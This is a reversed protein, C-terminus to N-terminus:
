RFECVKGNFVQYLVNNMMTNLPMWKFFNFFAFFFGFFENQELFFELSKPPRNFTTTDSNDSFFWDVVVVAVFSAFFNRNLFGILFFSNWTFYSKKEQYIVFCKLTVFRWPCRHEIDKYIYCICTNSHIFKYWKWFEHRTHKHIWCVNTIM